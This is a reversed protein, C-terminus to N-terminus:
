ALEHRGMQQSIDTGRERSTNVLLRGNSFWRVLKKNQRGDKWFLVRYCSAAIGHALFVSEGEQITVCFIQSMPLILGLQGLM